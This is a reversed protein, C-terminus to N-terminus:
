NDKFKIIWELDDVASIWFTWYKNTLITIKFYQKIQLQSYQNQDLKIKKLNTIYIEKLLKKKM